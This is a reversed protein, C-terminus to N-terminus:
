GWRIRVNAGLDTILTTALGFFDDALHHLRLTFGRLIERRSYLSFNVGVGDWTAGLPFPRGARVRSTQVSPLPSM